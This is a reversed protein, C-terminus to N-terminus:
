TMMSKVAQGLRKIGEHIQAEDANSYNLRLTQTGGGDTYFAEGPVFAVHFKIAQNFLDMASIGEPLTVWLFMGGEPETSHVEPPFYEAILELMLDRHRKYATRIIQIHADLDNDLLFQYLVRQALYNSHLDAAQKAILLKDMLAPKACVWGLRLGPAAIKSFSGLMFVYGDGDEWLPSADEGAFRLEGYPNDEIFYVGYQKLLEAVAQRKAPSYTLGSPNQFNPVGYFLKPRHERFATELAEIDIGDDLLSVPHLVPEFFSLAQIAGLYGPQEIVVADGADLLIKGILDLGQQSGNTILIEDPSITLGYKQHYRRAIYKRLPPYGESLGYQLVNAGDQALVKTSAAMIPEIPFFKANPLGGAFSIVQPDEGAKLIERIFSRKVGGMRRALHNEM